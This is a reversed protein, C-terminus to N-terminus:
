CFVHEYHSLPKEVKNKTDIAANITGNLEHHTNELSSSEITNSM